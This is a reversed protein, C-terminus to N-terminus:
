AVKKALMDLDGFSGPGQHVLAKGDADVFITHPQGSLGLSTEVDRSSDDITPASKWGYKKAFSAADEKSDEVAVYYYKLDPNKRQLQAFAPAESQCTPCWSAFVHIVAPGEVDKASLKGGGFLEGTFDPLAEASDPSADGSVAKAASDALSSSDRQSVGIAIGAVLVVIVAGAIVSKKNMGQDDCSRRM